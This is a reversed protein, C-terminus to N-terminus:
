CFVNTAGLTCLKLTTWMLYISLIGGFFISSNFKVFLNAVPFSLVVLLAETLLLVHIVVVIVTFM